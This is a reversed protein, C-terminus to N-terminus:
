EDPTRGSADRARNEPKMRDYKRYYIWGKREAALLLKDAIFVAVLGVIIWPIIHVIM